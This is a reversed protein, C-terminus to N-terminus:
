GAAPDAPARAAPPTSRPRPAGPPPGGVTLPAADAAADLLIEVVRDPADFMPMHGADPLVHQRVAVPLERRPRRVLPDLGCWVLHVPITTALDALREPVGFTRSRMAADVRVFDPAAVYAGVLARADAYAVDAMGGMATGLVRRRLAPVRLLPGIAPRAARGVRRATGRSPGLPRRWFGAPALGVVSRARGAVGLELAVWGGLSVGAAHVADIGAADLAVGVAEALRAPSPEVDAPLPPADGFGPLDVTVVPGRHRLRDLVPRWTRRDGGLGHVLLIPVGDGDPRDHAPHHVLVAPM